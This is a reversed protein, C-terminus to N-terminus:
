HGRERISAAVREALAEYGSDTYHVNAPLQIESLRSFAFSYLDNIPIGNEEMIRKAVTNYAIVDGNKRPPNVQADPVPTTSAWILRAGTRKLRAVLERLNKEYQDIVVQHNGHEMFRLDHLGWNFHIVQWQGDGLWQDLNALGNTTPGANVPIRHVNARGELLKRTPLTYGISISDGILLVRPLTPDDQIRTFAANPNQAMAPAGAGVSLVGCLALLSMSAVFQRRSMM